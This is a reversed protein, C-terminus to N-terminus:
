VCVCEACTRMQPCVYVYIYEMNFPQGRFGAASRVSQIVINNMAVLLFAETELQQVPTQTRAHALANTRQHAYERRFGCRPVM